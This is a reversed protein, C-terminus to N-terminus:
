GRDGILVKTAPMAPLMLCRGKPREDPRRHSINGRTHVACLYGQKRDAKRQISGKDGRHLATPAEAHGALM